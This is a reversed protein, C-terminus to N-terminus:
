EFIVRVRAVYDQYDALITSVASQDHALAAERLKRAVDTVHTFGYPTGVGIMRHTLQAIVEFNGTAFARALQSVEKRRNSLYDPILDELYRDVKVEFSAISEM